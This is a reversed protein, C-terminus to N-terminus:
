LNDNKVISNPAIYLSKDKLQELIDQKVVSNFKEEATHLLFSMQDITTRLQVVNNFAVNDKSQEISELFAKACLLVMYRQKDNESILEEQTYELVESKNKDEQLKMNAEEIFRSHFRALRTPGINFEKNLTREVVEMINAKTAGVGDSVGKEYGMRLGESYASEYISAVYKKLGDIGNKKILKLTEKWQSRSICNLSMTGGINEM